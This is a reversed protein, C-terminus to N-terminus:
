AGNEADNRRIRGRLQTKGTTSHLAFSKEASDPAGRETFEVRSPLLVPKAFEVDVTCATPLRGEFAALCRAASWMGHAITRPFGFAKATLPHLHIPNRDGSVAAYRRGLDGPLKWSATPQGAELEAIDEQRPVSDNKAGRHLYTSTETWVTREGVGTETIVDFQTGKPHPRLGTLRVRQTLTDTMLLPEHRTISNAVHVLGVLPFPFDRDTMLRVALPFSTIHPYTLPLEDRTGFGCIRNYEALHDSDVPVDSRVYETGPLEAGAPDGRRLPATAAAKLYLPGLKPAETLEATSM